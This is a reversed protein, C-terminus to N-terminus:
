YEEESTNEETCYDDDVEDNNVHDDIDDVDDNNLYDNVVMDEDDVMDV